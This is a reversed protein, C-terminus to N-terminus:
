MVDITVTATMCVAVPKGNVVTPEYRWDLIAARWSEALTPWPEQTDVSKVLKVETVDGSTGITVQYVLVGGHTRIARLDDSLEPKRDRLKRPTAAVDTLALCEAGSSGRQSSAAAASTAQSPGQGAKPYPSGTCSVIIAACAVPVVRRFAPILVRRNPILV